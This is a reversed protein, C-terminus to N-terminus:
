GALMPSNRPSTTYLLEGVALIALIGSWITVYSFTFGIWESPFGLREAHESVYWSELITLLIPTSAGAKLPSLALSPM